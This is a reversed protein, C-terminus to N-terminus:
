QSHQGPDDRYFPIKSVRNNACSHAVYPAHMANGAMPITFRAVNNSM